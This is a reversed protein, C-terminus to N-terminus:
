ALRTIKEFVTNKAAMQLKIQQQIQKTRVQVLYMPVSFRKALTSQITEANSFNLGILMHYPMSVYSAFELSDRKQNRYNIQNMTFHNGKHQLLHALLTFFHFHKTVTDVSELGIVKENDKENSYAFSVTDSNVIDVNFVTSVNEINVQEPRIIGAHILSDSIGKEFPTPIYDM